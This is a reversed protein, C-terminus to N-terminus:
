GTNRTAQEVQEVASLNKRGSGGNIENTAGTNKNSYTKEQAMWKRFAAQKVREDDFHTKRQVHHSEFAAIHAQTPESLKRMKLYELTEDSPTFLEGSLTSLSDTIPNFTLPTNAGSDDLNLGSLDRNITLTNFDILQRSSEDFCPINSGKKIENIHPHQHQKFNVVNVYLIDQVSYYRIFGSKDLNIGLKNIDCNDYPLLLSKIKKPRWEIDGKYDAITWLGIFLLRGLPDNHEALEDNTFFAPKINRSRAM